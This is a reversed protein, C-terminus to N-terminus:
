WPGWHGGLGWRGRGYGVSYAPHGWRQADEKASLDLVCHRWQDSNATYGLRSCAPGYVVMMENMEAQMRAAKQEPTTCAALLLAGLGAIMMKGM